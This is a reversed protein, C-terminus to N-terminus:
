RSGNLSNKLSCILRAEAGGGNGDHDEAAVVVGCTLDRFCWELKRFVHDLEARRAGLRPMELPDADGHVPLAERRPRDGLIERRAIWRSRAVHEVDADEVGARSTALAVLVVRRGAEIHKSAFSVVVPGESVNM